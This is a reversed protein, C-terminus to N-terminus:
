LERIESRSPFLSLRNEFNQIERIVLAKSSIESTQKTQQNDEEIFQKDM